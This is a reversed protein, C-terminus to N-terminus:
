VEDGIDLKEVRDHDLDAIPLHDLLHLAPLLAGEDL